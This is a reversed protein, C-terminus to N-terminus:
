LLAGSRSPKRARGRSSPLAAYQEPTLPQMGNAVWTYWEEGNERARKLIALLERLNREREARQFDHWQGVTRGIQDASRM